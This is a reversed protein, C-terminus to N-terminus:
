YGTGTGAKYMAKYYAASRVVGDDYRVDFLWGDLTANSIPAAAVVGGVVWPGSSGANWQLGSISNTGSGAPDGNWYFNATATGASISITAAIHQWQNLQIYGTVNSASPGTISAFSSGSTAFQVMMQQNTNNFLFEITIYPNSFSPNYGKSIIRPYANTIARPRVWASMSCQTTSTGNGVNNSTSSWGSSAGNAIFNACDSFFGANSVSVNSSNQITLNTSASGTDTFTSGNSDNLLWQHLTFSDIPYSRPYNIIRYTM